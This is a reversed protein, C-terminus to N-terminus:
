LLKQGRALAARLIRHAGRPARPPMAYGYIVERFATPGTLEAHKRLSEFWTHADKRRTLIFQSGPFARDIEKYMLPWPWDEFSDFHSVQGLLGDYDRKRWLNFAKVDYSSHKMSWHRLCVGLTSTGTKNLGIGVVKGRSASESEM